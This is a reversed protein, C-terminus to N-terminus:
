LDEKFGSRAWLWLAAQFDIPVYETDNLADIWAEIVYDQVKSSELEEDTILGLRHTARIIHRDTAIYIKDTNILPLNTYQYMVYLWYNCLKKGSLYPFDKKKEVQMYHRVKQIDNDFYAFFDTVRGNFNNVLTQCLKIWIQTQKNKQLALNYKSLAEQVETFEKKVVEQPNFVFKTENNEFTATASKWLTNSNRQYDLATPLTYFIANEESNPDLKKPRTDEPLESGWYGNRYLKNLYELKKLIEKKM